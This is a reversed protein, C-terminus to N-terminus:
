IKLIFFKTTKAYSMKNIMAKIIIAIFRWKKFKSQSFAIVIKQFTDFDVGYRMIKQYAIQISLSFWFGDFFFSALSHMSPTMSHKSVFFHFIVKLELVFVFEVLLLKDGKPFSRFFRLFSYWMIFSQLLQLHFPFCIAFLLLVSIVLNFATIDFAKCFAFSFFFFCCFIRLFDLYM